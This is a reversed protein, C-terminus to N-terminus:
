KKRAKGKVAPTATTDAAASATAVVKQGTGEVSVCGNGTTYFSAATIFDVSYKQQAARVAEDILGVTGKDSFANSCFEGTVPGTERLAQGANISPYTMSVAPADLIKTKVACAPLCAIALLAIVLKSNKM